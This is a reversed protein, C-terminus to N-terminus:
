RILVVTGTEAMQRGSLMDEYEIEWVYTGAPEQRSNYSGDWGRGADTTMFLRSGRRDYVSFRKIKQPTSPPIRFVDNKGDGNPTFADPMRLTYYVLLTLKSSAACGDDATVQLQYTTASIPTAVPNRLTPDDLGTAPTWQYSVVPGSVSPALRVSKGPAIITDDGAIVSPSPNVTIAITNQSVVPNQCTQTGALICNVLDGSILSDDTFVPGAQGIPQGNVQWQYRPVTTGATPSSLTTFTVPTGSCITTASANIQIAPKTVPRVTIANTTVACGDTGTVVATYVGPVSAAYLTDISAQQKWEAVRNQYNESLFLDGSDDVYLSPSGAFQNSTGSIGGAGGGGVSQAPNGGNGTGTGGNWVAITIGKTTTVSGPPFEQVRSNDADSIYLNGQRDVFADYPNNLQNAAAGPGNGGAVTLGNTTGTSGPPFEQIRNNGRDAVFLNGNRDLCIGTPNALQNAASGKGNGGAVTVGNTAGTSGPPFKLVRSNYTDAVYLTGATDVTLGVSFFQNAASGFGNGGAITTGPTTGTSGPPFKQVRYNYSDSVYLNGGKDVFIGYPINFQNAAAGKGNGGAVTIGSTADVSGAPFRLVQSNLIDLVYVSGDPGIAMGFIEFDPASSGPPSGTVLILSDSFSTKSTATEKAVKGQYWTISAPINRTTVALTDTTFCTNTKSYLTATFPCQALAATATMTTM